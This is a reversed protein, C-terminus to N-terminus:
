TTLKIKSQRVIKSYRHPSFATIRLSIHSMSNLNFSSILFAGQLPEPDTSSAPILWDVRVPDTSFVSSKADFVHAQSLPYLTPDVLAVQIDKFYIREIEYPRTGPYFTLVLIKQDPFTKDYVINQVSVKLKPKGDVYLKYCAYIGMLFSPGSLVIAVLSLVDSFTM